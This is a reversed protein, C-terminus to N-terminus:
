AVASTAMHVIRFEDAKFVVFHDIANPDYQKVIELLERAVSEKGANSLAQAVESAAAVRSGAPVPDGLQDASFITPLVMGVFAERIHLPVDGDDSPASIFINLRTGKVFLGRRIEVLIDESGSIDIITFM